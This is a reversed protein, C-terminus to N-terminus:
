CGGTGPHTALLAHRQRRAWCGVAGLGALLLALTGPEPIVPVDGPRDSVAIVFNDMAAYGGALLDVELLVNGNTNGAADLAFVVNRWDFTWKNPGPVGTADAFSLLAGAPSGAVGGPNDYLRLRVVPAAGGAPVFPGGQRDLDISSIDMRANVFSQAGISFAMGLRDDQASSLMSVVHSGAISQPDQFGVGFAQEGGVLLMETTYPQWYTFGPPQNAYNQNVTRLINMDGGDNVFGVPAEWDQTFLVTAAQAPLALAAVMAVAFPFRRKSM